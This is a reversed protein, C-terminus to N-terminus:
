EAHLRRHADACDRCIRSGTTADVGSEWDAVTITAPDAAPISCLPPGDGETLHITGVDPM